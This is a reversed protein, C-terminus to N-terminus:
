RRPLDIAPLETSPLSTSLAREGPMPQGRARMALAITLREASEASMVAMIESLRRPNMTEALPVLVELTLRDFVRAAEKPRMTEYLSTLRRLSEDPTPGARGGGAAAAQAAAETRAEREELRREAAAILEERLDLERARRELAERQAAIREGIAAEAPSAPSPLAPLIDPDILGAQGGEGPASGTTVVQPRPRESRLQALMRAFTPLDEEGPVVSPGPGSALAAAPPTPQAPEERSFLDVARLLLLAAIGIVVADTLRMRAGALRALTETLRARGARM